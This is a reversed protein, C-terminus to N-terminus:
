MSMQIDESFLELAIMQELYYYNWIHSLLDNYHPKVCVIAGM